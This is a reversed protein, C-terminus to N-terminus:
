NRQVDRNEPRRTLESVCRLIHLSKEDREHGHPDTDNVPDLVCSQIPPADSRIKGVRSKAAKDHRQDM